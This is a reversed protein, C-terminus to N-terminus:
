KKPEFDGVADFGNPLLVEYEFSSQTARLCTVRISYIIYICICRYKYRGGAVWYAITVVLIVICKQAVLPDRFLGENEVPM